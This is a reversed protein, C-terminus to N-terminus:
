REMGYIPPVQIGEVVEQNNNEKTNGMASKTQHLEKWRELIIKYKLLLGCVGEVGLADRSLLMKYLLAPSPTCIAVFTPSENSLSCAANYFDIVSLCVLEQGSKLPEGNTNEEVIIGTILLKDIWEVLEKLIQYKYYRNQKSHYRAKRGFSPQEWKMKGWRVLLSSFLGSVITYKINASGGIYLKGLPSLLQSKLEDFSYTPPSLVPLLDQCIITCRADEGDWSPLVKGLLFEEVEPPLGDAVKAFISLDKLINLRHDMSSNIHWEDYLMYQLRARLRIVESTMFNQKPLENEDENIRWNCILLVKKRLSERMFSSCSMANMDVHNQISTSDTIGFADGDLYADLFHLISSKKKIRSTTSTPYFLQKTDGKSPNKEDEDSETVQQM